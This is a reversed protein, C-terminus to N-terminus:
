LVDKGFKKTDIDYNKLVFNNEVVNKLNLQLPKHAAKQKFDVELGMYNAFQNLTYLNM